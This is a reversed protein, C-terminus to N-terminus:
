GEPHFWDYIRRALGKSIGDVAELDALGAQGVARGSGFHHLLAKKRAGGVGPIEDLPSKELAKARRARHTGIAFRHAEDRLRQLFYQVPDSPDLRIPDRGPLFLREQGANRDPGKAIACVCVDSVGLEAFVDLAVGLQGRGGDILVLDPWGGGTRDPDEGQARAFRRTLVERMMAYDDGAPVGRRASPFDAAGKINFKRYASKIFGERGAVIMAGVPNTGQIHSNDYVEIRELSGEIGLAAALGELHRRQSVSEVFRRGLAAEANSMALRVLSKKPGRQPIELRVAHGARETLAETLLAKEAVPHSLLILKPPQKDAYFQGM